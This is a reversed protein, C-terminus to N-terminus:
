PLSTLSDVQSCYWPARWWVCLGQASLLLEFASRVLTSLNRSAGVDTTLVGPDHIKPDTQRETGRSEAISRLRHTTSRPVHSRASEALWALARDFSSGASSLARLDALSTMCAADRADPGVRRCGDPEDGCLPRAARASLLLHAVRLAFPDVIVPVLANSDAM